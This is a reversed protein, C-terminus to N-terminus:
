VNFTCDIFLNSIPFRIGPSCPRSQRPASTLPSSRVRLCMVRSVYVTLRSPLLVLLNDWSSYTILTTLERIERIGAFSCLPLSLSLSLSLSGKTTLARKIGDSSSSSETRLNFLVKRSLFDRSAM